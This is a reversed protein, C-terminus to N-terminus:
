AHLEGEIVTVAHGTLLTRDGRLRTRVLGTRAGGQFGTLSREGADPRREVGSPHALRQASVHRM